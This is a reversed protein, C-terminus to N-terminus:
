NSVVIQCGVDFHLQISYGSGTPDDEFGVDITETPMGDNEITRRALNGIFNNPSPLDSPSISDNPNGFKDGDLSIDKIKTATGV